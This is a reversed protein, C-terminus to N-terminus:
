KEVDVNVCLNVYRKDFTRVVGTYVENLELTRSYTVQFAPRLPGGNPGVWYSFAGPAGGFPGGGLRPEGKALDVGDASYRGYVASGENAVSNWLRLAKGTNGSKYFALALVYKADSRAQDMNSAKELTAVANGYDENLLYAVGLQVNADVSQPNLEVAKKSEQLGKKHLTSKDEFLHPGEPNYASCRLYVEALRDHLRANNQDLQLGEQLLSYSKELNGQLFFVEALNGYTKATPDLKLSTNYWHEALDRESVVFYLTGIRDALIANIKNDQPHEKIEDVCREIETPLHVKKKCGYLFLPSFTLAGVLLSIGIVKKTSNIINELTIKVVLIVLIFSVKFVKRFLLGM